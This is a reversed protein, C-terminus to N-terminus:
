PVLLPVPGAELHGNWVGNESVVYRVGVAYTGAELPTAGNIARAAWDTLDLEHELSEGAALSVTVRASRNRDDALTLERRGDLVPTFWDYHRERAQVHSLVQLAADGVNELAIRVASAREGGIGLRLGGEPQGWALTV